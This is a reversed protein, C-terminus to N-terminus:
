LKFNEHIFRGVEAPDDGFEEFRTDSEPDDIDDDIEFAVGDVKTLQADPCYKAICRRLEEIDEQAKEGDVVLEDGDLEINTEKGDEHKFTLMGTGGVIPHIDCCDTKNIGAQKLTGTDDALCGAAECEGYLEDGEVSSVKIGDKCIILMAYDPGGHLSELARMLEPVEFQVYALEKGKIATM